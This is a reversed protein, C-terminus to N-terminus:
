FSFLKKFVGTKKQAKELTNLAPMFDPNERGAKAMWSIFEATLQDLGRKEIVEGGNIPPVWSFLKQGEVSTSFFAKTIKYSKKDFRIKMIPSTYIENKMFEKVVPEVRPDEGAAIIIQHYADDVQIPWLSLPYTTIKYKLATVGKRAPLSQLAELCDIFPKFDSLIKASIGEYIAECEEISVRAQHAKTQYKESLSAM